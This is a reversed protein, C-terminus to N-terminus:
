LIYIVGCPINVNGRKSYFYNKLHISNRLKNMIGEVAYDDM